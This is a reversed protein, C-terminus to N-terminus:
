IGTDEAENYHVFPNKSFWSHQLIRSHCKIEWVFTKSFSFNPGPQHSCELLDTTALESSALALGVISIMGM